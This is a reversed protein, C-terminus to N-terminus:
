CDHLSRDFLYLREEEGYEGNCTAAGPGRVKAKYIGLVSPGILNVYLSDRVSESLQPEANSLVQPMLLWINYTQSEGAQFEFGIESYEMCQWAGDVEIVPHVEVEGKVYGYGEPAVVLPLQGELYTATVEERIFVSSAIRAPDNPYCASLAAEPPIGEESYLLPGVSVENRFTTGEGDSSTITGIDELPGGVEEAPEPPAAADEPEVESAKTGEPESLAEMEPESEPPLQLTATDGGSGCGALLVLAALVLLGAASVLTLRLGGRM